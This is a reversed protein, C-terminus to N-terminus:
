MINGYDINLMPNEGGQGDLMSDNSYHNQKIHQTKSHDNFIPPQLKKFKMSNDNGDDHM